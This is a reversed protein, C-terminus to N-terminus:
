GGPSFFLSVSNAIHFVPRLFDGIEQHPFSLLHGESSYPSKNGEQFSCLTAFSDFSESLYFHYLAAFRFTLVVLYHFINNLLLHFLISTLFFSM